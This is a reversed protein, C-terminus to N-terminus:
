FQVFYFFRDIKKRQGVFTMYIPASMEQTKEDFDLQDYKGNLKHYLALFSVKKAYDSKKGQQNTVIKM